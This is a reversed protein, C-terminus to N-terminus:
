FWQRDEFDDWFDRKEEGKGWCMVVVAATVAWCIDCFSRLM